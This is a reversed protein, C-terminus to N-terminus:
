ERMRMRWEKREKVGKRERCKRKEGKRGGKEGGEM